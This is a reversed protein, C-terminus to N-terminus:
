PPQLIKSNCSNKKTIMKRTHNKEPARINKLSMQRARSKENFEGKRSYKKRVEGRRGCTESGNCTIIGRRWHDVIAEGKKEFYTRFNRSECKLAVDGELSKGDDLIVWDEEIIVSWHFNVQNM